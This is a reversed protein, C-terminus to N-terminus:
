KQQQRDFFSDMEKKRKREKEKKKGVLLFSLRCFILKKRWRVFPDLVFQKEAKFILGIVLQPGRKREEKEREERKRHKRKENRRKREEKKKRERLGEKRKRIEKREVKQFVTASISRSRLKESLSNECSNQQFPRRSKTEYIMANEGTSDDSEGNMRNETQSERESEKEKKGREREKRKRKRKEKEKQGRERETREKKEREKM